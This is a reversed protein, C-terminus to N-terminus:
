LALIDWARYSFVPGSNVFTYRTNLTFTHKPAAHFRGSHRCSRRGIQTLACFVLLLSTARFFSVELLSLVIGSRSDFLAHQM